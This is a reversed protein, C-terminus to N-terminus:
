IKNALAKAQEIGDTLKIDGPKSVGSVLVEGIPQWKMLEITKQYAFRIGDFTNMPQDACCSILGCSKGSTDKKAEISYMKDIIAKISAPFTYWYVPATFIIVGAAEIAPAVTNFDDDFTCAKGTKYCTDCARCGGVNMNAADFRTVTHGNATVTDIFAATLAASNGNKRPSGTIVIIKKSMTDNEENPKYYARDNM